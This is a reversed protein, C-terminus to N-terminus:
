AAKTLEPRPLHAVLADLAADEARRAALVREVNAVAGANDLAGGLNLFWSMLTHM